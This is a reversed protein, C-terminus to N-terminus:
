SAIRVAVARVRALFAVDSVSPNSRTRNGEGGRDNPSGNTYGTTTWPDASRHDISSQQRVARLDPSVQYHRGAGQASVTRGPTAAHEFDDRNGEKGREAAPNSRIEGTREGEADAQGVARVTAALNM